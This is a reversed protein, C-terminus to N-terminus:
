PQQEQVANGPPPRNFHRVIVEDDDEGQVNRRTRRSLSRTKRAPAPFHPEPQSVSLPKSASPNVPLPGALGDHQLLVPRSVRDTPVPASIPRRVLSCLLTLLVSLVAAAYFAAKGLEAEDPLIEYGQQAGPNGVSQNDVPFADFSRALPVTTNDSDAFYRGATKLWEGLQSPVTTQAPFCIGAQHSEDAWVVDGVARVPNPVHPLYLLLERERCQPVPGVAQIAIGGKSCNLVIGGNDCGLDVIVIQESLADYRPHVRREVNALHAQASM